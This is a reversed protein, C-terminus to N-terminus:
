VTTYGTNNENNSLDAEDLSTMQGFSMNENQKMFVQRTLFFMAISVVIQWLAASGNILLTGVVFIAAFESSTARTVFILCAVAVVGHVIILGSVAMVVM